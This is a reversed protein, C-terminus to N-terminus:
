QLLGAEQMLERMRQAYLACGAKNCHSDVASNVLTARDINEWRPDQFVDLERVPFGHEMGLVQMRQKYVDKFQSRHFVLLPIGQAELITHIELLSNEIDLWGEGELLSEDSENSEDTASISQTSNEYLGTLNMVWRAAYFILGLAYSRQSADVFFNSRKSLVWLKDQLDNPIIFLFAADAQLHQGVQKLQELEQVTNYSPVGMNLVRYHRGDPAAANLQDELQRPISDEVPVGVSFIVSDGMALIRFEGPAKVAPVPRDRMGLDNIDVSVGNFTGSLGPPFRYGIPEEVIVQDFLRATESYYSIGIPDVVRAIVELVVVFVLLQVLVTVAFGTLRQGPSPQAAPSKQGQTDTTAM